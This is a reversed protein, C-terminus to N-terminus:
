TPIDLHFKTFYYPVDNFTCVNKANQSVAIRGGYAKDLFIKVTFLGLGTGESTFKKAFKGRYGKQFIKSYEDKDLFPGVSEVDISVSDSLDAMTIVVEYNPPSYKIANEILLYPIIEFGSVGNNICNYSNGNISLQINKEYATSMLCKKIKEFKRYPTINSEKLSNTKGSSLFKYLDGKTSLLDALANINEIHPYLASDEKIEKKLKYVKSNIDSVITKLEHSFDYFPQSMEDKLSNYSLIFSMIYKEVFYKENFYFPIVKNKGSVVSVGKVKMGTFVIKYERTFLTYTADGKPSTTWGEKKLNDYFFENGKYKYELDTEEFINPTIEYIKENSSNFLICPIISNKLLEIMAIREM